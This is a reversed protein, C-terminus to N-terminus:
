MAPSGVNRASSYVFQKRSSQAAPYEQSAVHPMHRQPLPEGRTVGASGAFYLSQVTAAQAATVPDAGGREGDRRCCNPGTHQLDEFLIM